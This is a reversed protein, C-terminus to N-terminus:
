AASQRPSLILIPITGISGVEKWAWRDLVLRIADQREAVLLRSGEALMPYIIGLVQELPEYMPLMGNEQVTGALGMGLVIM